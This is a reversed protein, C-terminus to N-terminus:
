NYTTDPNLRVSPKTSLFGLLAFGLYLSVLVVVMHPVLATALVDDSFSLVLVPANSSTHLIATGGISHGGREFVFALPFTLLAALLVSM